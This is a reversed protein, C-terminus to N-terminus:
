GDPDKEEGWSPALEGVVTLGRGFDAADQATWHDDPRTRPGDDGIEVRVTDDDMEALRIHVIGGPEGSASHRIANTTLESLVLEVARVYPSNALVERAWQRVLPVMPGSGPVDMTWQGM